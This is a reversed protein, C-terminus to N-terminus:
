QGIAARVAVVPTTRLVIGTVAMEQIEANPGAAHIVVELRIAEGNATDSVISNNISKNQIVGRSTSLATSNISQIKKVWGRNIADERRQPSFKGFLAELGQM